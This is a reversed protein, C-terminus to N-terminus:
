FAFDYLGAESNNKKQSFECVLYQKKPSAWYPPPSQWAFYHPALTPTCRYFPLECVRRYALTSSPQSDSFSSSFSNNLLTHTKNPKTAVQGTFLIVTILGIWSHLTYLNAIPPDALNHSDFVAKLGIVAFIFALCHLAAHLLKLTKKQRQRGTRYILMAPFIVTILTPVQITREVISM